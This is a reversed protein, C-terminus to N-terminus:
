TVRKLPREGEGSLGAAAANGTRKRGIVKEGDLREETITQLCVDKNTPFPIPM